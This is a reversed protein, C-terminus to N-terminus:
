ATLCTSHRLDQIREWYWYSARTRDLEPEPAGYPLADVYSAKHFHPGRQLVGANHYWGRHAVMAYGDQPWLFAMGDDVRLDRGFLQANWLLAWMDATWAQVEPDQRLRHFLRASDLEVKQWFLRTVGQLVYQAGAAGGNRREQAEIEGTRMGLVGAASAFLDPTQRHLYAAGLYSSCDSGLWSGDAPPQPEEYAPTPVADCDHYLVPSRALAPFARWHKALIHPRITSPYSRDTRTDAYYSVTLGPHASALAAWEQPVSQGPELSCVVHHRHLPIGAQQFCHLMVEVQWAYYLTAPQACVYIM